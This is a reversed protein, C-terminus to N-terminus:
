IREAGRYRAYVHQGPGFLIVQYADPKAGPAEMGPSGLPMDPVALGLARPREALLRLIEAAPVHGEVLYGGIEATHCSALPEPIGLRAKVADLTATERVDVTFGAARVHKVWGACCGCNPDKHVLMPPRGQAWSPSALVVSGIAALANRRTVPM